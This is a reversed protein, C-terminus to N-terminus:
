RCAVQCNGGCGPCGNPDCGDDGAAERCDICLVGAPVGHQCEDAEESLICAIEDSTLDTFDRVRKGLRRAHDGELAMGPSVRPGVQWVEDARSVMEMDTALGLERMDEAWVGSLVIWDASIAVEFTKAIWGAWEAAARRNNERDEGHGLPHAVYIVKM